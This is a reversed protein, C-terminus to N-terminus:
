LNNVTSSAEVFQNPFHFPSKRVVPSAARTSSERRTPIQIPMGVGLSM